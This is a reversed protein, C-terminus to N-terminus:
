IKELVDKDMEYDIGRNYLEFGIQENLIKYSIQEKYDWSDNTGKGYINAIDDGYPHFQRPHNFLDTWVHGTMCNLMVEAHCNHSNFDMIAEKCGHITIM